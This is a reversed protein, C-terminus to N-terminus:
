RKHRYHLVQVPEVTVMGSDLMADLVPLFADIKEKADVIEIVIPLDQSLRLLHPQHLHSTAGFGLAGRLVTTGALQAARAKLVIAEYLPHLGAHHNEGTFIRLLVAQQPIEM